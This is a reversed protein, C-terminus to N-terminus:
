AASQAQDRELGERVYRTILADMSIRTRVAHVKVETHVPVPLRVGLKVKQETQPTPKQIDSM